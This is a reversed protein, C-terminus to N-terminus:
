EHKWCWQAKAEYNNSCVISWIQHHTHGGLGPILDELRKKNIHIQQSSGGHFASISGVLWDAQFKEKRVLAM